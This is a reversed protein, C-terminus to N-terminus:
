GLIYSKYTLKYLVSAVLAAGALSTLIKIMQNDSAGTNIETIKHEVTTSTEVGCVAGGYQESRCTVTEAKVPLASALLVLTAIVIQKKMHRSHYCGIIMKDVM